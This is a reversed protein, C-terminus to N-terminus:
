SLPVAVPVSGPPNDIKCTVQERTVLQGCSWGAKDGGNKKRLVTGMYEGLRGWERAREGDRDHKMTRISLSLSFHKYCIAHYSFSEQKDLPISSLSRSIQLPFCSSQLPLFVQKPLSLSTTLMAPLHWYVIWFGVGAALMSKPSSISIIQSSM